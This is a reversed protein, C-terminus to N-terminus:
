KVRILAAALYGVVQKKDGTVDGSNSSNLIIARNAGSARAALMATVAPGGGCAECKGAALSQALGEPDLERIYKIFVQDLERAREYAYFHSLDTSALILTKERSGGKARIHNEALNSCTKFDQQGMVIPIIRSGTLVTQLFPVALELSHERAHAQPLWRIQGSSRILEGAFVRDVPAIGLPTEYGTQLNVSVGRFGVRHSPGIMVVRKFDMKQLLRYAHAAVQGSYRYGAHPM